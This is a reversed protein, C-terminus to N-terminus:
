NLLSDYSIAKRFTMNWSIGTHTYINISIYVCPGLTNAITNLLKQVYRFLEHRYCHSFTTCVHFIVLVRHNLYASTMSNLSTRYRLPHPRIFEHTFHALVIFKCLFFLYEHVINFCVLLSM